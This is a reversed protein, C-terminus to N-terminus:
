TKANQPRDYCLKPFYFHRCKTRTAHFRPLFSLISGLRRFSFLLPMKPCIGINQEKKSALLSAYVFRNGHCRVSIVKKSSLYKKKRGSTLVFVGRLIFVLCYLNSIRHSINKVLVRLKQTKPPVYWRKILALGTNIIHTLM